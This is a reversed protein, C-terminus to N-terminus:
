YLKYSHNPSSIIKYVAYMRRQPSLEELMYTVLVEYHIPPDFAGGPPVYVHVHIHWKVGWQFKVHYIDYWNTYTDFICRSKSPCKHLIYIMALLHIRGYVCVVAHSSSYNHPDVVRPIYWWYVEGWYNIRLLDLAYYWVNKEIRGIMKRSLSHTPKLCQSHLPQHKVKNILCGPVTWTLTLLYNIHLSEMSWWTSVFVFLIFSLPM